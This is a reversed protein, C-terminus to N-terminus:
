PEREQEYRKVERQNAKRLSIVRIGDDTEVFVLCHLRDGLYGFARIRKEGYDKRDDLYYIATEFDFDTVREFSIGRKSINAANKVPDFAIEM